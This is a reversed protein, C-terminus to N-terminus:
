QPRRALTCPIGPGGGTDLREEFQVEDENDARRDADCTELPLKEEASAPENGM